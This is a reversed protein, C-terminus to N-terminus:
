AIKIDKMEVTTAKEKVAMIRFGDRKYQQLIKWLSVLDEIARDPHDSGILHLLNDTKRRNM